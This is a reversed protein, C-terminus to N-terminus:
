QSDIFLNCFLGIDSQQAIQQNTKKEDILKEDHPEDFRISFFFAFLYVASIRLGGILM